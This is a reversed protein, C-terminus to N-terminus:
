GSCDEERRSYCQQSSVIYGWVFIIESLKQCRNKVSQVLNDIDQEQNEVLTEGKFRGIISTIYRGNYLIVPSSNKTKLFADM